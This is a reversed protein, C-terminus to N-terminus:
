NSDYPLVGSLGVFALLEQLERSANRLRITRGLRRAGLQLRALADVTAADPAVIAAVDCVVVAADGDELLLRTRECIAEIPESVSV